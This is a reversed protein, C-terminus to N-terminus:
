RGAAARSSARGSTTASSRSRAARDMSTRRAAAPPGSTAAAIRTSCRGARGERPDRGQPQVSEDAHRRQAAQRETQRAHLRQRPRRAARRRPGVGRDSEGHLAARARGVAEHQLAPEHLPLRDRGRRGGGHLVGSRRRRGAPGQRGRSHRRAIAERRPGRPWARAADAGSLSGVQGAGFIVHCSTSM